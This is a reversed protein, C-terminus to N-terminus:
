DIPNVLHAFGLDAFDRTNRTHFETVGHARLTIGLVLDFTRRHPFDDRELHPTVKPWFAHEWGCRRCGSQEALFRVRASAEAPPLPNTLIRPHRLCRYLEFLVQDALMWELPEALLRDLAGRAKAHEECDRNLAYVLIQTDLSKM